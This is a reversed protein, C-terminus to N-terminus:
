DTSSRLQRVGGPGCLKLWESRVCGVQAGPELAASLIRM